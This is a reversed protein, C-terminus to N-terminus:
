AKSGSAARLRRRLADAMRDIQEQMPSRITFEPVLSRTRGELELHVRTGEGRPELRISGQLERWVRGDCVKHFQVHGDAEFDFHFTAVGERGLARYRTRTTKRKPTNEVFETEADPFLSTYTEDEALRRATEEVPRKVDFRKELRM